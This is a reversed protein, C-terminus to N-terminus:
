LEKICTHSIYLRVRYVKFHLWVISTSNTNQKRSLSFELRVFVISYRSVDGEGDVGCSFFPGHKVFTDNFSGRRVQKFVEPIFQCKLLLKFYPVCSVCSREHNRRHARKFMPGKKKKPAPPPPPPPCYKVTIVFEDPNHIWLDPNSSAWSIFTSYRFYIRACCLHSQLLM